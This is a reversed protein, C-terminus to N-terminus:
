IIKNAIKLAKELRHDVGQRSIKLRDAIEQRTLGDHFYLVFAERQKDTLKGLLEQRTEKRIYAAEPNEGFSADRWSYLEQFYTDEDDDQMEAEDCDYEMYARQGRRDGKRNM